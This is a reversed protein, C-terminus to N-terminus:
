RSASNGRKLAKDISSNHGVFYSVDAIHVSIVWGDNPHKEISLADDFDKATDPDITFSTLKRLDKRNKIEKKIDIDIKNVDNLIEQSFEENIGENNLMSTIEIGLNSKHGLDKVISGTINKQPDTM